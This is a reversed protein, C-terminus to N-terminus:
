PTQSDDDGAGDLHWGEWPVHPNDELAPELQLKSEGPVCLLLLGFIQSLPVM